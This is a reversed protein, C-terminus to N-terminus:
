GARGSRGHRGGGDRGHGRAPCARSDRRRSYRGPQGRFGDFRVRGDGAEGRGGGAGQGVPQAQPRAQRCQHGPRRVPRGARFPRPAPRRPRAFAGGPPHLRAPRQGRHGRNRHRAGQRRHLDPCRGAERERDRNRGSRGRAAQHRAFHAGEGPRRGAGEGEGPRGEQLRAAGRRRPAVLRYGLSPGDRRDRQRPRRVPRVRHHEQGRRRHGLGGPPKRPVPGVPERPMAQHRALGPAQQFRSGAGDGRGGPQDLRDQGPPREEQDLEDRLCPGARRRRAGARRLRRLRHHQQGPRHVERGGPVQAGGRGVPRSRAAEHRALHAPDRPQVPHGAGQRDARHQACREPPQDPAVRHRHRAAARRGRRSRRVRRLRHHEQRDRRSDPTGQSQRSARQAGRRPIGRAGRPALRRYQRPPPGDQPDPLAAANGDAPFRRAGSARRGPQGPSVGGRRLPRGHFRGQGPRLDHRQGTRRRRFGKRAPDM